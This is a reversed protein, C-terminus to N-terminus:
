VPVVTQALLDELSAARTANGLPLTDVIDHYIVRMGLAEALVSVQSGIHGYGVIGLTKGRVEHSGAATKPWAGRHVARNKQVVGHLLVITLGIVLDSIGLAQAIEVAGWVVLRAGVLLAVLGLLLWFLAVGLPMTAPIEQEFEAELADEHRSSRALRIMWYVFGILGTLLIVGEIRSLEGDAMLFGCVVMLALLMPFERRLVESKVTLPAILATVGLVLGINTINSGLANGVGLAPNGEYAAIGSVLMEPASTGFGVVVLGIILPSVGLTNATAAAGLVFRDAGWVLLVFGGVIAGVELLGFEM